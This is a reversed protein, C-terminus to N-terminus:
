QTDSIPLFVISHDGATNTLALNTKNEIVVGFAPPVNGGFIAAVSGIYRKQSLLGTTSTGFIIPVPGKLNMGTNITVAADTGTVPFDFNTGDPSGYFHAYCALDSGHTGTTTKLTIMCAYDLAKTGTNSIATCERGSGNALTTLTCTAVVTAGYIVSSAM